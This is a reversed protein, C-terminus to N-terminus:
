RRHNQLTAVYGVLREAWRHVEEDSLLDRGPRSNCDYVYCSGNAPAADVGLYALDPYARELARAAQLAAQEVMALEQVTTNTESLWRRGTSTRLSRAIAGAHVNTVVAGRASKRLTLATTAWEGRENKQVTVRFDVRRGDATQPLRINEQLLYRRARLQRRVLVTLQSQTLVAAVRKGRLRDAQAHFQDIGIREIRLLNRGGSGLEPKLWVVPQTKLFDFVDRVRVAKETLPLRGPSIDARRLLDYVKRKGPLVPNICPWNQERIRRRLLPYSVDASRLERLYMLDVWIPRVIKVATARWVKDSLQYARMRHPRGRRYLVDTPLVVYMALDHAAALQALDRLTRDRRRGLRRTPPAGTIVILM